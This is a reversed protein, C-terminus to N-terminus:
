MKRIKHCSPCAAPLFAARLLAGCRCTWRESKWYVPLPEERAEDSLLCKMCVAEGFLKRNGCACRLLAIDQEPLM